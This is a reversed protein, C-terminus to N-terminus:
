SLVSESKLVVMAQMRISMCQILYTKINREGHKTFGPKYMMMSNGRIEIKEDQDICYVSGTEKM